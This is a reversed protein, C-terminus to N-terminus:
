LLAAPFCPSVPPEAKAGWRNATGPAIWQLQRVPSRIPVCKMGWGEDTHPVVRDSRAIM